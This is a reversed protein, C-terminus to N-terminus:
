FGLDTRILNTRNQIRQLAATLLTDGLTRYLLDPAAAKQAAHHLLALVHRRDTGNIQLFVANIQVLACKQRHNEEILTLIRLNHLFVHPLMKFIRQKVRVTLLLHVQQDVNPPIGKRLLLIRRCIEILTCLSQVASDSAAAYMMM